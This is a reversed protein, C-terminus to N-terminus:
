RICVPMQLSSRKTCEMILQTYAFTYAINPEVSFPSYKTKVEQKRHAGGGLFKNPNTNQEWYKFHPYSFLIHSCSKLMKPNLFILETAYKEFSLDAWWCIKKKKVRYLNCIYRESEWGSKMKGKKSCVVLVWWAFM